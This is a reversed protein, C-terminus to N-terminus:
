PRKSGLGCLIKAFTVYNLLFCLYRLLSLFQFREIRNLHSNKFIIIWLCEFYNWKFLFIFCKQHDVETMKLGSIVFTSKTIEQYVRFFASKFWSIQFLMLETKENKMKSNAKFAQSALGLAKCAQIIGGKLIM